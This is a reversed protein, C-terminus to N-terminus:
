PLPTFLNVPDTMQTGSPASLTPEAVGLVPAVIPGVGGPSPAPVAGSLHPQAFPEAVPQPVAVSGQGGPVGVVLAPQYRQVEVVAPEAAVSPTMVKRNTTDALNPPDAPVVVWGADHSRTKEITTAAPAVQPSSGAGLCVASLATAAALGVAASAFRRPRLRRVPQRAVPETIADRPDVTAMAAGYALAIGAPIDARGPEGSVGAASAQPVAEVDTLGLSSLKTRLRQGNHKADDSWTLRVRDIELGDATAIAYAGRAAMGAIEIDAAFDMADHDLVTGRTADVLAWGVEGATLSMGLVAGVAM